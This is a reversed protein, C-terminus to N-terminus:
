FVANDKNASFNIIVNGVNHDRLKKKEFDANHCTGSHSGKGDGRFTKRVFDEQM